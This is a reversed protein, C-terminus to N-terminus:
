TEKRRGREKQETVELEMAKRARRSSWVEDHSGETKTWPSGCLGSGDVEFSGNSITKFIRFNTDTFESLALVVLNLLNFM